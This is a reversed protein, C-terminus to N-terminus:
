MSITMSKVRQESMRGSATASIAGAPNGGSDRAEDGARPRSRTAALLRPPAQRCEGRAWQPWWGRWAGVFKGFLHQGIKILRSLQDLVGPQGAAKVRLDADASGHSSLCVLLRPREVAVTGYGLSQDVPLRKKGLELGASLTGDRQKALVGEFGVIIKVGKAPRDNM